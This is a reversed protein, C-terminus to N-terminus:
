HDPAARAARQWETACNDSIREGGSPRPRGPVQSRRGGQDPGPGPHACRAKGLAQPAVTAGVLAGSRGAAAGDGGNFGDYGDGYSYPTYRGDYGYAKPPEYRYAYDAGRGPYYGYPQAQAASALALVLSATTTLVKRM